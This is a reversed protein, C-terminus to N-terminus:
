VKEMVPVATVSSGAIPRDLLAHLANAAERPLLIQEYHAIRRELLYLAIYAPIAIALGWATTILAVNIGGSLEQVDPNVSGTFDNFTRIMGFVTGLLGMLPTIRYILALQSNQQVLADCELAIHERLVEAPDADPKFELHSDVSRIIEALSHDEALLIERARERGGEKRAQRLRDVFGAPAVRARRLNIFGQIVFGIMLVLCPILAIMMVGGQVVYRDFLTEM